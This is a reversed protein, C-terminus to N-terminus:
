VNPQTANYRFLAANVRLPTRRHTMDRWTWPTLGQVPWPKFRSNELLAKLRGVDGAPMAGPNIALLLWKTRRLAVRASQLVDFEAGGANVKLLDITGPEVGSRAHAGIANRRVLADLTMSFAKSEMWDNRAEPIARPRDAHRAHTADTKHLTYRLPVSGAHSGVLVRYVHLRDGGIRNDHASQEIALANHALPEAAHVDCGRKAFYLSYLGIHSGVDLVVKRHASGAQTCTGRLAALFVPALVHQDDWQRLSLIDAGVGEIPHRHSSRNWRAPHVVHPVFCGRGLDDCIKVNTYRLRSM